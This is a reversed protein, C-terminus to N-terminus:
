QLGGDIVTIEDIALVDAGVAGYVEPPLRAFDNLVEDLPRGAEVELLAELVPRPGCSHLHRALHQRRPSRARAFADPPFHKM